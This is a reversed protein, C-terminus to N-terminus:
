EVVGTEIQEPPPLVVTITATSPPPPPSDTPGITPPESPVLILLFPTIFM